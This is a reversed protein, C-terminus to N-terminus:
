TGGRRALSAIRKEMARTIEISVQQEGLRTGNALLNTRKTYRTSRVYFFVPLLLRGKREYIGAALSEIPRPVPVYTRGQRAATSARRAASASIVRRYGESLAAGMQNLVAVIQARSVNGYGDLKAHKGPVCKYGAPMAGSAVLAREFKRLSRDADGFEQTAIYEAPSVGNNAVADRLSVVASLTGVDARKSIIAARRTLATPQELEGSLERGWADAVQRATRNLAEAIGSAFRRDSFSALGARLEDLGTVKISIMSM